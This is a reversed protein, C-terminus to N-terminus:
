PMAAFAVTNPYDYLYYAPDVRVVPRYTMTAGPVTFSFTGAGEYINWLGSSLKQLTM